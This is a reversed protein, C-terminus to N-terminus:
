NERSTRPTRLPEARNAVRRIGDKLSATGFNILLGLRLDLLRLYTLLQKHHLPTIAQISEIEVIIQGDVVLDARFANDIVM